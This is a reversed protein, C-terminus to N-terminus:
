RSMLAKIIATDTAHSKIGLSFSEGTAEWNRNIFGASLLKGLFTLNQAVESHNLVKSFIVPAILGNNEFIIYKM